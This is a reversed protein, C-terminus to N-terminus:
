LRVIQFRAAASLGPNLPDPVYVKTSYGYHVYIWKEVLKRHQRAVVAKINV